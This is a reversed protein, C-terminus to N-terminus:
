HLGLARLLDLGIAYVILPILIVLLGITNVIDLVRAPVPRRMIVEIGLFVLRGGDAIPLPLLNILFLNLGLIAMIRLFGALGAHEVGARLTRFIGIPGQLSRSADVGGSDASRFFRGIMGFTTTLIRRTEDYAAGFGQYWADLAYPATRYRHMALAVGVEPLVMRGSRPQHDESGRVIELARAGDRDRADAALVWDGAELDALGTAVEPPYDALAITTLSAAQASTGSRRLHIQGDAIREIRSGSLQQSVPIRPRAFLFLKAMAAPEHDDDMASWFGDDGALLVRQGGRVFRVTIEESRAPQAELGLLHDGAEVGAAALPPDDHGLGASLWPLTGHRRTSMEIGILERGSRVDVQPVMTAAHEDWAQSHVDFRQWRVHRGTDTGDRGRRVLAQLHAASLVPEGDVDVLLDGPRLGAQAAPMGDLVRTVMVPLGIVADSGRGPTGLYDIAIEQARGDEHVVRVDVPGAGLWPLLLEDEVQQGSREGVAQGAVAVLRGGLLAEVAPSPGEVGTILVDRAPEVGLRQHGFVPDFVGTVDGGGDLILEEGARQVRIRLPEGGTDVMALQIHEFTRVPRDNIAVIRDGPRLGLAAAPGVVQHGHRDVMTTEIAGVEPPMTPMGYWVLFLLILFSSILNCAVGAVLILARWSASVSAFARGHTAPDAEPDEEERFAVYGGLPLMSLCYTTDGVTKSWLVKGFGVSFTTVEIGALKACIFHGFEHVIIVFGIGILALLVHSSGILAEM